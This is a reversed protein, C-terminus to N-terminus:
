PFTIVANVARYRVTTDGFMGGRGDFAFPEGRWRLSYHETVGRRLRGENWGYTYRTFHTVIEFPGLAQARDPIPGFRRYLFVGASAIAVLAVALLVALSRKM